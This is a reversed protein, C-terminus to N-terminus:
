EACQYHYVTCRIHAQLVYHLFLLTSLIYACGLASHVKNIVYVCQLVENLIKKIM